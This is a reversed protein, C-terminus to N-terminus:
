DTQMPGFCAEGANSAIAVIAKLRGLRPELGWAKGGDKPQALIDSPRLRNVKNM